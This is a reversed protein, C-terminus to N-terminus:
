AIFLIYVIFLTRIPCCTNTSRVARVVREGLGPQLCCPQRVVQGAHRTRLKVPVQTSGRGERAEAWVALAHQGNVRQFTLLREMEMKMRCGGVPEGVGGGDKMMVGVGTHTVGEDTGMASIGLKTTTRRGDGTRGRLVAMALGTM